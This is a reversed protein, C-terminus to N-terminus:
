RIIIRYGPTSAVIQDRACLLAIDITAYTPQPRCEQFLRNDLIFPRGAVEILGADRDAVIVAAGAEAFARATAFGIGGGAGTILATKGEFLRM